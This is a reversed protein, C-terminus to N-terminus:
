LRRWAKIFNAGNETFTDSAWDDLEEVCSFCFENLESSCLYITQDPAHIERIVWSFRHKDTVCIKAIGYM